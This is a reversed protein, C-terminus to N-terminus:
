FGFSMQGAKAPPPPEPAIASPRIPAQSVYRGDLWSRFDHDCASRAKAITMWPSSDDAHPRSLARRGLAELARGRESGLAEIFQETTASSHVILLRAAMERMRVDSINQAIQIRAGNSVASHFAEAREKDTSSAFKEYIMAEPTNVPADYTSAEQAQRATDAARSSRVTRMRTELTDHDGIPLGLASAELATFLMPSANPKFACCPGEATFITDGVAKVDGDMLADMNENLRAAVAQGKIISLPLVPEFRPEGFSTFLYMVENFTPSSIKAMYQSDGRQVAMDFLRRSRQAIQRMISGTARADNVARHAKLEIGNAPAVHQLRWSPEGNEKRGPVIIAPDIFHGLRSLMMLDLQRIKAGSTVWPDLLNRWMMTRLILADFKLGNWTALLKPQFSPRLNKAILKAATTEDLRSPDCLEDPAYGCVDMAQPAPVVYPLLRVDIETVGIELLTHPDLSISGYELVQGHTTDADTTETDFVVAESFVDREM